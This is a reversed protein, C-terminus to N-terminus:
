EHSSLSQLAVGIGLKERFVLKALGGDIPIEYVSTDKTRDNYTALALTRESGWALCGPGIVESKQLLSAPAIIRVAGQQYIVLGQHNWLAIQDGGGVAYAAVDANPYRLRTVGTGDVSWLHSTLGHSARSVKLYFVTEGAGFTPQTIWDPASITPGLTSWERKSLENKWMRTVGGSSNLIALIEAGDRRVSIGWISCARCQSPLELTSPQDASRQIELSEARDSHRVLMLKTSYADESTAATFCLSRFNPSDGCISALPIRRRSGLLYVADSSLSAGESTLLYTGINSSRRCSVTAFLMMSAVILVLM